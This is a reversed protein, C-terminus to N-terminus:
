FEKGEAAFKDCAELVARAAEPFPRLAETVLKKWRAYPASKVLASETIELSGSLVALLKTASTLATALQAKEKVPSMPDANLDAMAKQLTAVTQTAVTKPDQSAKSDQNPETEQKTSTAGGTGIRTTMIVPIEKMIAEAQDATPLRAGTVIRNVAEKRWGLRKVATAQGYKACYAKLRTAAGTTSLKDIKGGM